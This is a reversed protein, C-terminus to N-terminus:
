PIGLDPVQPRRELKRARHIEEMIADWETDDALAGETRLLGEGAKRSPAPVIKVQVIVEQGDSAELDEDLEITRGRIRGHLTKIMTDREYTHSFVPCGLWHGNSDDRFRSSSDDM